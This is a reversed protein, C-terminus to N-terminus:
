KIKIIFYNAFKQSFFIVEKRKYSNKNNFFIVYLCTLFIIILIM